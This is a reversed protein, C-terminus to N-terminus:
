MFIPLEQLSWVKSMSVTPGKALTFLLCLSATMGLVPFDIWGRTALLFIVPWKATAVPRKLESIQNHRDWSIPWQTLVQMM